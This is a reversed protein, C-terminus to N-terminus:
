YRYSLGASVVNANFSNFAINSHLTSYQYDLTFRLNRWIEYNLTAGAMWGTDLRDFGKYDSRTYGLRGGISWQRSLGYTTQLLATTQFNPTGLPTTPTIITSMSLVEDVSAIFAWYPTPNYYVRGGFVPSDFDQPVGFGPLQQQEQHQFQYGGYVEGRVLSNKDDTGIGGLVRYGNTDFISNNYRQWIGDVEGFAYVGPVFHYGARGSLWVSTGDHSTSFPAPNDDGHDYAIYFATGSVSAFGEGFQKTASAGATFQNFAIPNVGPSTGFPNIVIPITVPPTGSPGIANNNFNLASNFLSTERTYRANFNLALDQTPNYNHSLGADASVTNDNFFQFDGVAFLTTSHLAGDTGTAILRPAVRANWGSDKNTGTAAQNPNSNYTGGVFISPYYMWPGVALGEKYPGEPSIEGGQPANDAAAAVNDSALSPSATGIILATCVVAASGCLKIRIWRARMTDSGVRRM